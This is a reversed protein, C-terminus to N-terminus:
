RRARAVAATAGDAAFRPTQTFDFANGFPNAAADRKGLPALHHLKEILALISATEVAHSRRLRTEGVALDSDGARALRDWRDGAPPAVHDWRGGHEDYTVIILTDHWYPSQQLLSVLAAVHQQGALLASYGPHENNEGVPKVFSV